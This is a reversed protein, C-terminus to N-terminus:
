MAKQVAGSVARALEQKLTRIERIVADNGSIIAQTQKETLAAISTAIAGALKIEPPAAPAEFLAPQELAMPASPGSTEFPAPAGSGEREAQIRRMRPVTTIKRLVPMMGGPPPPLGTTLHRADDVLGAKKMWEWEDHPIVMGNIIGETGVEGVETFGEGLPGGSASNNYKEPHKKAYAKDAASAWPALTLKGEGGAGAAGVGAGGGPQFPGVYTGSVNIGWKRSSVEKLYNLLREAGNEASTLAADELAIEWAPRTLEGLASTMFGVRIIGTEVVGNAGRIAEEILHWQRWYEILTPKQGTMEQTMYAWKNTLETARVNLTVFEVASLAADNTWARFADGLADIELRLEETKKIEAETVVLGDAQADANERIARGGSRLIPDLVAWNRGLIQALYAARETPSTMANTEDALAAINAITPAFGNKTALQLSGTVSDMSVGFDDAVQIFRSLEESGMGTAGAADSISKNYAILDNVARRAGAALGGVVVAAGLGAANFGTMGSIASTLSGKFSGLQTKAGKLAGQLKSSDAGIEAYM